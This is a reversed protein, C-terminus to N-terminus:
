PHVPRGFKDFIQTCLAKDEPLDPLEELQWGYQGEAIEHYHLVRGDIGVAYLNTGSTGWIDFLVKQDNYLATFSSQLRYPPAVRNIRGDNTVAWITDASDRYIGYIIANRAPSYREDWTLRGFADRQLQFLRGNDTAVFNRATDEHSVACTVWEASSTLQWHLWISATDPMLVTSHSAAIGYNFVATLSEIDQSRTLTDVVTWQADRKYIVEPANVWTQGALQRLAGKAGAAMVTGRYSGIAFLNNSTGSNMASWSGAVSRRLIVGQHGTAYVTGSGDGWVDTLAVTTGSQERRWETGDWHYILGPRGVVFIDDAASGWIGMFWNGVPPSPEPPYTPNSKEDSCGAALLLGLGMVLSLLVIIRRAAAARVGNM